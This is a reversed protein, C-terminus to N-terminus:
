RMCFRDYHFNQSAIGNEYLGKSLAKAFSQPGCFWFHTDGKNAIKDTLYHAQLREGKHADLLHLTVRAQACLSTLKDVYWADESRSVCYWLDVPVSSAGHHKRYELQAIFPTIGIGGAIWVQHSCPLTFDFKGWPGEVFASQGIKISSALTSTYDGLNKIAFRLTNKEKTYSAITFPHSEKSHAFTLFAFQGPSYDIAHELELTVETIQGPHNVINKITAQHKNKSGNLKLLSIFAAFVGPITILILLYAAPTEWWYSKFLATFM